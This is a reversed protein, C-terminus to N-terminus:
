YNKKFNNKHFSLVSVTTFTVIGITFASVLFILRLNLSVSYIDIIEEISMPVPRFHSILSTVRTPCDLTYSIVTGDPFELKQAQEIAHFHNLIEISMLKTSIQNALLGGITIALIIAVASVVLNEILFQLIVKCRSEGLSLYIGIEYRRDSISLVILLILIIVSTGITSYLLIDAIMQMTDRASIFAIFPNVTSSTKWGYESLIEDAIAQFKQINNINDILFTNDIYALSMDDVPPSGFMATYSNRRIQLYPAVKQTLEQLFIRPTFFANYFNSFTTIDMVDIYLKPNSFDYEFQFLDSNINFLGVIELHIDKQIVAGDDYRKTINFNNDWEIPIGELKFSLTVFGGLSLDNLEAYESSIMVVPSGNKLEDETILRGSHLSLLDFNFELPVPNNIGTLARENHNEDFEPFWYIYNILNSDITKFWDPVVQKNETTIQWKKVNFYHSEVYPVKSLEELVESSLRSATPKNVILAVVPKIRKDLNEDFQIISQWITFSFLLFLCLTLVIFFFMLFKKWEKILVVISRKVFNMFKVMWLLFSYRFQYLKKYKFNNM